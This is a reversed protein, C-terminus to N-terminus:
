PGQSHQTCRVLVLAEDHLEPNDIQWSAAPKTQLLVILYLSYVAMNGHYAEDISQWSDAAFYAIQCMSQMFLAHM